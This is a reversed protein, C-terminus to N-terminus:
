RVAAIRVRRPLGLIKRGATLILDVGRPFRANNDTWSECFREPLGTVGIRAVGDVGPGALEFGQGAGIAAVELLVTAAREPAADDGLDFRALPLLPMERGLFAFRAEAPDSTARAGTHFALWRDRDADPPDSWFPTDGDLLALAVAAQAPSLRGRAPARDLERVVGPEAMVALLHRFTAQADHVPDAFGPDAM